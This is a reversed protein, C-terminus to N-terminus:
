GILIGAAVRAVDTQTGTVTMVDGRQLVTRPTFPLDRGAHKMKLM